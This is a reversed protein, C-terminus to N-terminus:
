GDVLVHGVKLTAYTNERLSPKPLDGIIPSSALQVVHESSSFVHFRRVYHTFPLGKFGKGHEFTVPQGTCQYIVVTFGIRQRMLGGM